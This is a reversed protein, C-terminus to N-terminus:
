FVIVIFQVAPWPEAVLSLRGGPPPEHGGLADRDEVGGQAVALLRGSKRHPDVLLELQRVLERREAHVDDLGTERDRGLRVGFGDAHDGRVDAARHDGCERAAVGGVDLTGAPRELRRARRRMWTKM